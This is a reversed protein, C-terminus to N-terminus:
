VLRQTRTSLDDLEISTAPGAEVPEPESSVPTKLTSAVFPGYIIPLMVAVAAAAILHSQPHPEDGDAAMQLVSAVVFNIAQIAGARVGAKEVATLADAFSAISPQVRVKFGTDAMPPAAHYNLALLTVDDQVANFATFLSKWLVDLSFDGSPLYGAVYEIMGGVLGFIGAAAATPVVNIEDVNDNLPFFSNAVDRILSYMTAHVTPGALPGLNGQLHLAIGSASTLGLMGVRGLCTQLNGTGNLHERVLGMLNWSAALAVFGVTVYSNDATPQSNGGEDAELAQQLYYSIAQGAAVSFATVLGTRAAISLASAAPGAITNLADMCRDMVWQARSPQTPISADPGPFGDIALPRGEEIYDLVQTQMDVVTQGGRDFESRLAGLFVNMTDSIATADTAGAYAVGQVVELDRTLTSEPPQAPGSSVEQLRAAGALTATLCNWM